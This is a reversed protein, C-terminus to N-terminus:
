ILQEIVELLAQTEFQRKVIYADAGVEVGRRRDADSALSTVIVVPLHLYTENTKIRQTLEFGNLLPMEVDSLVLDFTDRQLAEWAQEGDATATV